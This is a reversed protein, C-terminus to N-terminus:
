QASDATQRHLTLDANVTDPQAQAVITADVVSLRLNQQAAQLWDVLNAFSAGSLQLKVLDGSLTVNKADLGKDSLSATLSAQTLAPAPTGAKGSLSQADQAMRQLEAAQGRLAPLKHELDRRGSLAPDILLAYILAVVIVVIAVTLMNRERRNRESWFRSVSQKMGGLGGAAGRARTANM